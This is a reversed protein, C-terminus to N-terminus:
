GSKGFFLTFQFREFYYLVTEEINSLLKKERYALLAYKRQQFRFRIERDNHFYKLFM